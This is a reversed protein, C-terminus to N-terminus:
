DDEAGDTLYHTEDGYERDSYPDLYQEQVHPIQVSGCTQKHVNNVKVLSPNADKLVNELNDDASHIVITKLSPNQKVIQVFADESVMNNDHDDENIKRVAAYLFELRPFNVAKVLGVDTLNPCDKIVLEELGTLHSLPLGTKEGSNTVGTIGFDTLFPCHAFRLIKLQSMNAIIFQLVIDNVMSQDNEQEFEEDYSDDSDSEREPIVSRNIITLQTLHTFRTLRHINHQAMAVPFCQCANECTCLQFEPCEMCIHDCM